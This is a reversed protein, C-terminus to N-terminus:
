LRALKKRMFAAMNIVTEKERKCLFYPQPSLTFRVVTVDTAWHLTGNYFGYKFHVTTVIRPIKIRQQDWKRTARPKILLINKIKPVVDSKMDEGPTLLVVGWGATGGGGKVKSSTWYVSTVFSVWSM